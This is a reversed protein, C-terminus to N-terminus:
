PSRGAVPLGQGAPHGLKFAGLAGPPDAAVAEGASFVDFRFRMCLVDERLRGGVLVSFEEVATFGAGDEDVGSFGPVELQRGLAGFRLPDRGCGLRPNWEDSSVATPSLGSRIRLSADNAASHPALGTSADEPLVM